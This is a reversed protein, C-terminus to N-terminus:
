KGHRRLYYVAGQLVHPDEKAMGILTNCRQHVIGRFEDTQHDHDVCAKSSGDGFPGDCVACRYGQLVLFDQYTEITLGYRKLRSARIKDPNNKRYKASTRRYLRVHCEKCCTNRGSRTKPHPSFDNLTKAIKCQTCTQIPGIPGVFGRM